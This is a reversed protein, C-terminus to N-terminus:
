PVNPPWESLIYEAEESRLVRSSRTVIRSGLQFEREMEWPARVACVFPRQGPPVTGTVYRSFISWGKANIGAYCCEQFYVEFPSHSEQFIGAPSM